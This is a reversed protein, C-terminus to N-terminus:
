LRDRIVIGFEATNGSGDAARNDATQDAARDPSSGPLHKSNSGAYATATEDAIAQSASLHPFSIM